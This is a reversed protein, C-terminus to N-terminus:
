ARLLTCQSSPAPWMICQSCGAATAARMRSAAFRAAPQLRAHRRANQDDARTVQALDDRPAQQAEITLRRKGGREVISKVRGVEEVIGTFM